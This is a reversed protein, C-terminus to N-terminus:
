DLRLYKGNTCRPTFIQSGCSDLTTAIAINHFERRPDCGVNIFEFPFQFHCSTEVEGCHNSVLSTVKNREILTHETCNQNGIKFHFTMADEEIAFFHIQEGQKTLPGFFIFLYFAQGTVPAIIFDARELFRKGGDDLPSPRLGKLAVVPTRIGTPACVLFMGEPM